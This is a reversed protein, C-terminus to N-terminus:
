PTIMKLSPFYHKYRRLDRTILTLSRVAAHAGIFFDPLSFRTGGKRKYQILCKGALFCAEWPLLERIFFEHSLSEELDEIHSFMISVESYVIPNIFLKGTDAALATTKSSWYITM